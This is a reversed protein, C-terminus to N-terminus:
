RSVFIRQDNGAVYPYKDFMKRVVDYIKGELDKVNEQMTGTAVGHWVLQEKQTDVLDVILTGEKYETITTEPYVWGPGWYQYYRWHGYYWYWGYYPFYPRHYTTTARTKEEVKVYINVVLDPDNSEEYNRLRMQEYIAKRVRNRNLENILPEEGEWPKPDALNFTTYDGFSATRDYDSLIRVSSCASLLLTSVM